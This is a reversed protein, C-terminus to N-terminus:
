YHVEDHTSAAFVFITPFLIELVSLQQM